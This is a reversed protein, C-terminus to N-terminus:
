LIDSVSFVYTCSSVCVVLLYANSNESELCQLERVEQESAAELSSTSTYKEWPSWTCLVVTWARLM